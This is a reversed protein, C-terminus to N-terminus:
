GSSRLIPDGFIDVIHAVLVLMSVPSASVAATEGVLEEHSCTIDSLMVATM